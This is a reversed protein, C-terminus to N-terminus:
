YSKVRNQVRIWIKELLYCIVLNILFTILTMFYISQDKFFDDVARFVLRYAKIECLHDTSDAWNLTSPWVNTKQLKDDVYLLLIVTDSHSTTNATAATWVTLPRKNYIANQQKNM